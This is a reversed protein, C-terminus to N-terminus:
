AVRQPTAAEVRNRGKKKALYLAEDAAAILARGRAGTDEGVDGRSALGISLTVQAVEGSDMPVSLGEILQRLKEAVGMAGSIETEPLVLMFEEGGYRGISDAERLQARLASAIRQLVLDGALHGHRDNVAKFHDLDALALTLPRDYRISRSWERDLIELIAERRFLGTLSEYTASEFLRANEFVTAVHNALLALLEMEEATYREQNSKPGLALVGILQDQSVLPVALDAQSERLRQALGPSAAAPHRALIPRRTRALFQLGPDEPALFVTREVDTGETRTTALTMLHGTPPATIWLTMPEAHFIEALSRVLHEGMRPLKGLAPLESTLAVVRRRFTTREPFFRKDIAAELRQRLPNFLLGLVLTTGAILWISRRDGAFYDAYLAGGAALSATFAVLLLATLIGFVLGKRMVFEIDFLHYRFIAFFVAVPYALLVFPWLAEPVDFSPLGSADVLTVWFVLLIWPALGLLVIGVQARARPERARVFRAGLITGDLAAWVPLGWDLLLRSSGEASWPLQSDGLREALDATAAALGIGIGVVYLMPVIWRQRDLVAPRNPILCLLHVDFGFQAGSVLLFAAYLLIETPRTGTRGPLAMEIALLLSYAWLLRARLDAVAYPLVLLALGTYAAAAVLYLLFTSGAFPVGPSVAIELHRGGREVLFIVPEGRRFKAAARDYDRHTAVSQGAIAEIRDGVQVGALAAPQDPSESAITLAPPEDAFTVGIRRGAQGLGLYLTTAALLLIGLAPVVGLSFQRKSLDTWSM